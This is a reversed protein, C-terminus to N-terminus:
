IDIKCKIVFNVIIELEETKMRSLIEKIDISTRLKLKNFNKIMNGREENYKNCVWFIHNADEPLECSCLDNDTIRFRALSNKLSNHGSRLRNITVIAKRSFNNKVFWPKTSLLKYNQFYFNGKNQERAIRELLNDNDKQCKAKFFSAIDSHPIAQEMLLGESASKKALEDVKNNGQINKHAPIWILEITKNKEKCHSLLHNIEQIVHPQHKLKKINQIANLVSKSDSFIVFNNLESKSIKRIANM